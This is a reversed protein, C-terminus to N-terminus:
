KKKSCSFLKVYAAAEGSSASDSEENDETGSPDIERSPLETSITGSDFYRLGNM